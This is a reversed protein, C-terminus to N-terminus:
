GTEAEPATNAAVRIVDSRSTSSPISFSFISGKRWTSEVWIRGQHARVLQASLYLGV